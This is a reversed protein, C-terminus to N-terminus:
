VVIGDFELALPPQAADRESLGEVPLPWAIAVRRDLPHVGREAAPDYAATHLYLLECDDAVAQFGHAFGEPIYLSRSNAATLMEAHWHLFTPSNRRLDVAADFIAGHLCSVIKAEASPQVQYHMGRVSGKARTLSRNVQVIARSGLVTALDAEDYIREFLGREDGHPRRQLLYVGPLKTESVGFRGNM